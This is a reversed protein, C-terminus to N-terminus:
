RHDKIPIISQVKNLLEEIRFPKILINYLSILPFHEKLKAENYGSIFIVNTNPEQLLFKKVLEPGEIDPLGVDIICLGFSAAHQEFLALAEVGKSCSTVAIYYKYL